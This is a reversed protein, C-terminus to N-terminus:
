LSWNGGKLHHANFSAIYVFDQLNSPFFLIPRQYNSSKYRIYLIVYHCIAIAGEIQHIQHDIQHIEFILAHDTSNM